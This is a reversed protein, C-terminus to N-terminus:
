GDNRIRHGSTTVYSCIGAIQRRITRGGCIDDEKYRLWGCIGDVQARVDWANCRRVGVGACGDFVSRLVPDRTPQLADSGSRVICFQFPGFSLSSAHDPRRVGWCWFLTAPKPISEALAKRVCELDEPFRKLRVTAEGRRLDVNCIFQGLITSSRVNDSTDM